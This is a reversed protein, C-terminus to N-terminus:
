TRSVVQALFRGFLFVAAASFVVCQRAFWLFCAFFLSHPAVADPLGNM